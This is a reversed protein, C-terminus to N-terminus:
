AFIGLKLFGVAEQFHETLYLFITDTIQNVSESSLPIIKKLTPLM